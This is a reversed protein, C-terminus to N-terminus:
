YELSLQIKNLLRYLFLKFREFEVEPVSKNLLMSATDAHEGDRTEPM